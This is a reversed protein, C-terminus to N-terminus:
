AGFFQEDNRVSFMPYIRFLYFFCISPYHILNTMNQFLNDFFSFLCSLYHVYFNICICQGMFILGCKYCALDRHNLPQKEQSRCHTVRFIEGFCKM